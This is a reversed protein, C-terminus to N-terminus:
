LSETTVTSSISALTVIRGNPLSADDDSYLCGHHDSRDPIHASQPPTLVFRQRPWGKCAAFTLTLYQVM